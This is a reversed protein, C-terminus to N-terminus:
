RGRRSQRITWRPSPCVGGPCSQVSYTRVVQSAPPPSKRTVTKSQAREREHIAAHLQEKRAKTWGAIESSKVGHEILHSEITGPYTWPGRYWRGIFEDADVSENDITVRNTAFNHPSKQLDTFEEETLPVNPSLPEGDPLPPSTQALMTSDEGGDAAPDSHVMFSSPAARDRLVGLIDSLHVNTQRAEAVLEANYIQRAQGLSADGSPNCGCLLSVLACVSIVRFM